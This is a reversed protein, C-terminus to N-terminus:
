LESSLVAPPQAPKQSPKTMYIPRPTCQSTLVTSLPCGRGQTISLPKEKESAKLNPRYSHKENERPGQQSYFMAYGQKADTHVKEQYQWWVSLKMSAVSSDEGVLPILDKYHTLPLRPQSWISSVWPNQLFEPQFQLVRAGTNQGRSILMTKRDPPKSLLTAQHGPSSLEPVLKDIGSPWALFNERLAKTKVAQRQRKLEPTSSM